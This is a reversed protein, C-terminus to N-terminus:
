KEDNAINIKVWKLEYINIPASFIIKEFTLSPNSDINTVKGLPKSGIDLSVVFDDLSINLGRPLEIEYQGGGRGTAVAGVYNKGIQVEHKEMPSSFLLVKSTNKFVDIVRGIPVEGTSYVISSTSVNQNTGADVILEDYAVFPPKKIIPAIIYDTSTSINLIKRFEENENEIYSTIALSSSNSEIEQKLLANEYLLKEVDNLSGNNISYELRWFPSIISNVLAPIFHPFLYNFIVFILVVVIITWLYISKIWSKKNREIYIM